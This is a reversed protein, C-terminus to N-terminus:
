WKWNLSPPTLQTKGEKKSDSSPTFVICFYNMINFLIFIVTFLIFLTLWSIPAMQPM